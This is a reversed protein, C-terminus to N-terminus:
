LEKLRNKMSSQIGIGYEKMANKADAVKATLPLTVPDIIM